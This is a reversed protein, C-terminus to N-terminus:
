NLEETPNGDNDVGLTRSHQGDPSVQTWTAGAPNTGYKVCSALGANLIDQWSTGAPPPSITNDIGTDKIRFTSEGFVVTGTTTIGWVTIDYTGDNLGTEAATFAVRAHESVGNNFDDSTCAPNMQAGTISKLMLAASTPQNAAKVMVTFTIVNSVDEDGAIEDKIFFRFALDTSKAAFPNKGTAAKFSTELDWPNLICSIITENFQSM